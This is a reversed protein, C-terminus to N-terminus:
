APEPAPEEQASAVEIQLGDLRREEDSRTFAPFETREVLRLPPVAFDGREQADCFLAFLANSAAHSALETAFAWQKYLEATQYEGRKGAELAQAEFNQVSTQLAKKVVDSCVNLTTLDIKSPTM